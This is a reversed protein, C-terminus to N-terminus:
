KTEKREFIKCNNYENERTAISRCKWYCYAVKTIRGTKPGIFKYYDCFLCDKCKQNM